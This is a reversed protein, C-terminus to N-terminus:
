ELLALTEKGPGGGKEAEKKEVNKEGRFRCSHRPSSIISHLKSKHQPHPPTKLIIEWFFMHAEHLLYSYGGAELRWWCILTIILFQIRSMLSAVM